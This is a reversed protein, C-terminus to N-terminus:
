NLMGAKSLEDRLPEALPSRMMLLSQYCQLAGARDGLNVYARGLNYITDPLDPRIRLAMTFARVAESPQGANLYVKGLNNWADFYSPNLKIAEKLFSVALNFEGREAHTIGLNNLVGPNGPNLEAAIRFEALAGDYEKRMLYITGLNIHPDPYNFDLKLAKGFYYEARGPAGIRMLALGLNNYASKHEPDLEIAKQFESIAEMVQGRDLLIKGLNNHPRAKNPSKKVVDQWLALRSQWVRNREHTLYAFVVLVLVGAIVAVRGNIWGRRVGSMVGTIVVIIIGLIALYVRHEMIVDRLPVVTSTPALLVYFWIIGYGALREEGRRCILYIGVCVMVLNLLLSLLVPLDTLSRYIPYDYDLNQGLPLFILRLYTLIVRMQTYFYDMASIGKIDFGVHSSGSFSMVLKVGAVVGAILVPMMGFFARKLERRDRFARVYLLYMLPMTVVIQKSGWGLGFGVMGALWWVARTKGESEGYKLFAMLSLLYFLSALVEARQVIYSVSETQLPHLGFVCAVFVGYWHPEKIGGDRFLRLAFMYVVLVMLLHLLINTIHYVEVNSGGIRYNLYFTFATVVRSSIFASLVGRKLMVFPDKLFRGDESVIYGDDFQFEGHIVNSYVGAILTLLVCLLIVKKIMDVRTDTM